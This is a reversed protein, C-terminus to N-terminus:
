LLEVAQKVNYVETITDWPKIFINRSACQNDKSIRGDFIAPFVLTKKSCLASFTKAWSDCAIISESGRILRMQEELNYSRKDICGEIAPYSISENPTGIIIPTKGQKLLLSLLPIWNDPLIINQKGKSMVAQSGAPAVIIQNKDIILPEFLNIWKPNKSIGYKSFINISPTWELIHQNSPTAGAHICNPLHHVLNFLQLINDANSSTELYICNSIKPFLSFLKKQSSIANCASFIIMSETNDYTAALMLLADGLGGYHFFFKPLQKLINFTDNAGANTSLMSFLNQNALYDKDSEKIFFPKITNPLNLSNEQIQSSIINNEIFIRSSITRDLLLNAIKNFLVSSFNSINDNATDCFLLNSGLYTIPSTIYNDIIPLINILSFHSYMGPYNDATTGEVLKSFSSFSCLEVITSSRNKSVLQDVLRGSKENFEILILSDDLNNISVMEELTSYRKRYPSFKNFENFNIENELSNQIIAKKFSKNALKFFLNLAEEPNNLTAGFKHDFINKIEITPSTISTTISDKNKILSLTDECIKKICNLENYISM